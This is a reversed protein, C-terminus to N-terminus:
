SIVSIIPKRGLWLCFTMGAQHSTNLGLWMIKPLAPFPKESMCPPKIDESIIAMVIEQLETGADLRMSLIFHTGTSLHDKIQCTFSSLPLLGINIFERLLLKCPIMLMIVKHTCSSMLHRTMHSLRVQWPLRPLYAKTLAMRTTAPAWAALKSSM